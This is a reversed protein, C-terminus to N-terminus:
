YHPPPTEQSQDIVTNQQLDQMDNGMKEVMRTLTRIDNHHQVLSQNLKEILDDQFTVKMELEEVRTQLTEIDM